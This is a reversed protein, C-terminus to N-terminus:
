ARKTPDAREETEAPFLFTQVLGGVIGGGFIGVLYPLAYSLDGAVIAPGLTRAPNLSAGTYVGGALICAALTFGIAVAALIGAKEFAAAQFVASVLIFTMVGEFLAAQWVSSATLSGTTQGFGVEAPVVLRLVIAAALGGLLQAIIYAIAKAADIKGGLLLAVTVAPNVHAGSIHGYAYIIGVLALGHGLAAVLVGLQQAETLSGAVTVVAAGIFVLVFTGLFEALAPRLVSQNM